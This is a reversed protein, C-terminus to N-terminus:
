KKYPNRLYSLTMFSKSVAGKKLLSDPITSLHKIMQLIVLPWDENAYFRLKSETSIKMNRLLRWWADYVWINRLAATGHKHLLLFGEPLEVEPVYICSQTVQSQSIGVNILPKNIYTFAKEQKLIRIYFEMDVRWKLRTDYKEKISRHLMTVSPPGIVNRALLVNPENLIKKKWLAPMNVKEIKNSHEFVNNYSSFIFKNEQKTNESFIKLADVSSFWDDDHMLKIWEGTAQSIAYNWNAPTGLSPTNHFYRVSFHNYYNQLLSFVARDNSDDSVIVEFDKFNQSVISDLLRKLYNVRQYAPICISILPM